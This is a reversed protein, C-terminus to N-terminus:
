RDILKPRKAADRDALFAEVEEPGPLKGSLDLSVRRLFTEDDSLPPLAAATPGTHLLIADVPHAVDRESPRVASNKGDSGFAPAISFNLLFIGLCCAPLGKCAPLSRMNSEG